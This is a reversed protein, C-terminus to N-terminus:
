ESAKELEKELECIEIATALQQASAERLEVKMAENQWFIADCCM